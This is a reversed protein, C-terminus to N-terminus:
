KLLLLKKTESFDGASLKYFYVGSNLGSGDFTTEYTGPQLRENVLTQVERGMVDYVKLVVKDNGFTKIPFGNGVDFKIKTVPNFPNPYSQSLSYKDSLSVTGIQNNTIFSAWVKYVNKTTAVYFTDGTGTDKSIGIVIKSPSFSNNYFAWNMGYNTSIHVGSSDGGYLINQLEPNVELASFNIGTFVSDWSIGKNYSRYLSKNNFGYIVSDNNTFVISKFNSVNPSTFNNGGNTSLYLRTRGNAYVLDGDFPNYKIFGNGLNSFWGETPLLSDSAYIFTWNLGKNTSKHIGNSTYVQFGFLLENVNDPNYDMGYPYAISGGSGFPAQSYNIGGNTTYFTNADPCSAAPTIQYKIILNTDLKPIAFVSVPICETYGSPFETGWDGNLFGNASQYWVNSSKILRLLKGSLNPYPTYNVGTQVYIEKKGATTTYATLMKKLGYENSSYIIATGNGQPFVYQTIFVM